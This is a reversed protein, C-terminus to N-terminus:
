RRSEICPAGVSTSCVKKSALIIGICCNEGSGDVDNASCTAGGCVGCNTKCCVGSGCIGIDIKASISAGKTMTSSLIPTPKDGKGFGAPTMLKAKAPCPEGKCERVATSSSLCVGKPVDDRSSVGPEFKPTYSKELPVGGMIKIIVCTNYDPFYSKNRSYVLGGYWVAGLVYTGDPYVAPVVFKRRFRHGTKDTGCDTKGCPEMDAEWCGHLFANKAHWAESYMHEYPVLSWRM